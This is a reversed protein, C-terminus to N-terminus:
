TGVGRGRVSPDAAGDPSRGVHFCGVTLPRGALDLPEAIAYDAWPRNGTWGGAEQFDPDYAKLYLQGVCREGDFALLSAIGQREIFAGVEEASRWHVGEVAGFDAIEM